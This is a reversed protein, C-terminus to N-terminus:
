QASRARPSPRRGASCPPACTGAVSRWRPAASGTGPARAHTRAARACRGCGARASSGSSARSVYERLLETLDNLAGNLLEDVHHVHMTEGSTMTTNGSENMDGSDSLFSAQRWKNLGPTGKENMNEHYSGDDSDSDLAINEKDEDDFDFKPAEFPKLNNQTLHHLGFCQLHHFSELSKGRKQLWSKLKAQLEEPKPTNFNLPVPTQFKVKKRESKIASIVKEGKVNEDENIDKLHVKDINEGISSWKHICNNIENKSIRKFHVASISRRVPVNTKPKVDFVTHRKNLILGSDKILKKLYKTDMQLKKVDDVEKKHVPKPKYLRDFVSEKNPGAKFTSAPLSKRPLTKAVETKPAISKRFVTTNTTVRNVFKTDKSKTRVIPIKEDKPREIKSSTPIVKKSAEDNKDHKNILDKSKVHNLAKNQVADKPKAVNGTTNTKNVDSNNEKNPIKKTLAAVSTPRRFGGNMHFHNRVAGIANPRTNVSDTKSKSISLNSVSKQPQPDTKNYKKLNLERLKEIRAKERAIREERLKNLRAEVSVVEM